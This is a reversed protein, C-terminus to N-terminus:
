NDGAPLERIPRGSMNEADGLVRALARGTNIQRQQERSLGGTGNHSVPGNLYADFNACFFRLSRAPNGYFPHSSDLFADWRSAFEKFTVAPQRKLLAALQAYDGSGWSPYQGRKSWFKERAYQKAAQSLTDTKPLSVVSQLTAAEASQTSTNASPRKLSSVARAKRPQRGSRPTKPTKTDQIHVRAVDEVVDQVVDEVHEECPEYVPNLYDTSKEANLVMGKRVGSSVVYRNLLIPHPYHSGATPFAHIYHRENLRDFAYQASRKVHGYKAAHITPNTWVIGTSSDAELLLEVFCAFETTSM